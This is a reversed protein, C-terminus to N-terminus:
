PQGRPPPADRAPLHRVADAPWVGLLPLTREAIRRFVPAAVSGGSRGREPEEVLVLITLVPDRAPVFGVFSAILRTKSYGRAQFEYKETTGTKGAVAYGPVAARTGTGTEDAVVHEMYGVMQEATRRSLVRGLSRRAHREVLSGDGARVERVLVPMLLEGGNAVANIATVLQLPSVLIGHGFSIAAQDVPTWRQAPLVMGEAEGALRRGDQTEFIGLRGGFGFRRIYDHFVPVPILTGIKAACINSSVRIIGAPNLWGHPKTDHIVSDYLEMAGNECFILTDPKIVGEELAIALTLVKFTSGPEYGSTVARDFYAEKDYAGYNNPNFGPVHAMALVEASRADLVVAVGRKAESVAVGRALETEAFYQIAPHITLMVSGGAAPPGGRSRLMVRGLADTDLLRLEEEGALYSDYAYELGELGQTDVGTFGLLAAALERGPYTRRFEQTFALGPLELARVRTAEQPLLQRKIWVFPRRSRLLAELEAAPMDLVRSLRYATVGPNDVRAPHAYLSDAAISVALRRGTRDLIPGRKGGIRLIRQSQRDQLASLREHQLVQLDFARWVLFLALLGLGTALFLVRPRFGRFRQPVPNALYIPLRSM